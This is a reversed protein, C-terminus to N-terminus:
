QENRMVLGHMGVIVVYHHLTVQLRLIVPLNILQLLMCSLLLLGTSLELHLKM